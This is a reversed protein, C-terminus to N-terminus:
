LIKQLVYTFDQKSLASLWLLNCINVSIEPRFLIFRYGNLLYMRSITINYSIFLSSVEGLKLDTSEAFADFHKASM